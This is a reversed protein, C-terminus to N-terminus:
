LQNNIQLKLIMKYEENSRYEDKCCNNFSVDREGCFNRSYQRFYDFYKNESNLAEIKIPNKTTCHLDAQVLVAHKVNVELWTQWAM